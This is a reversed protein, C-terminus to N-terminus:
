AVARELVAKIRALHHWAHRLAHDEIVFQSTLPAGANLSFGAASDLQADSLARVAQAAELSNKRLLALTDQKSCAANDQAHRANMDAVVAWTVDTVPRGAAIENALHVEIPYVSAVHHVIVGATRGDPPIPTTWEADSLGEAYAELTQAGQEIRQALKEARAGM